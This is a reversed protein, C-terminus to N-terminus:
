APSPVLAGELRRTDVGFRGLWAFQDRRLGYVSVHAGTSALAEALVALAFDHMERVQSLDILFRAGVAARKLLVEVRRAVLGDFSSDPRITTDPCPALHLPM